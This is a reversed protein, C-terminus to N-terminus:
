PAIRNVFGHILIVDTTGAFAKVILSNQLLL